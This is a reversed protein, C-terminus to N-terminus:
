VDNNVDASYSEQYHLNEQIFGDACLLSTDLSNSTGYRM